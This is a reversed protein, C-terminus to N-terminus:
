TRCYTCSNFFVGEAPAESWCTSGDKDFFTIRKMIGDWLFEVYKKMWDIMDKKEFSGEARTRTSREEENLDYLDKHSNIIKNLERLIM